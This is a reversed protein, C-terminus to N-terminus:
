LQSILQDTLEKISHTGDNNLIIDAQPHIYKKQANIRALVKERSLADRQMTREMRVEDPAVVEVIKDCLHDFGSEYLIASEVFALGTQHSYWHKLDFAVAPHVVANLRKLLDENHFVQQAVVETRYTDGDFVDSGFLVEVQSRVAVNHVIIHKAASDTDYIPYSRRSLEAAITSKGSGIGGTIGILM